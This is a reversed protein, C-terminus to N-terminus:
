EREMLMWWHIIEFSNGRHRKISHNARPAFDGPVKGLIELPEFLHGGAM